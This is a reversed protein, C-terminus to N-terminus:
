ALLPRLLPYSRATLGDPRLPEIIDHSLPLGRLRHVRVIAGPHRQWTAALNLVAANSVASERENVVLDIPSRPADARAATRLEMALRLGAAVAHTPYRPYGHAPLQRERELPHWWLFVNPLRELATALAPTLRDTVGAIGLLPAIALASEVDHHHALWAALLGGLSFGVIRVRSGLGRAVALSATVSELLEGSRLDCLAATLRDAHGHRPLRPVLVNDGSRYVEDALAAFQGPSATLGHLFLTTRETTRGHTLVISRCAAAIDPGDAAALGACAALASAYSPVNM